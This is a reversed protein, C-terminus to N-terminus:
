SRLEALRETAADIVTLRSEGAVVAQLKDQSTMRGIKSVADEINLDGVPSTSSPEGAEDVDVTEVVDTSPDFDRALRLTELLVASQREDCEVIDGEMPPTANEGVLPLDYKQQDDLGINLLMVLKRTKAM